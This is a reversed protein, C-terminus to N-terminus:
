ARGEQGCCWEPRPRCTCRAEQLSLEQEYGGSQVGRMLELNNRKIVDIALYGQVSVALQATLDQLKQRNPGVLTLSGHVILKM